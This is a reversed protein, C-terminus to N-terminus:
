IEIQGARSPHTEEFIFVPAQDASTTVRATKGVDQAVLAAAAAWDKVAPQAPTVASGAPPSTANRCGTSSIVAFLFGGAILGVGLCRVVFGRM